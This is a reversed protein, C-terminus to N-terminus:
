KKRKKEERRENQRELQRKKYDSKRKENAESLYSLYKEKFEYQLILLLETYPAPGRLVKWIVWTNVLAFRFLTQFHCSRWSYNKHEWDHSRITQNFHDVSGMGKTSYDHAAEPKTIM